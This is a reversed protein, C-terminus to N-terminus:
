QLQRRGATRVLKNGQWNTQQCNISHQSIKITGSDIHAMAFRCPYLFFYLFFQCCSCCTRVFCQLRKLICHASIWHMEPPKEFHLLLPINSAKKKKPVKNEKEQVKLIFGMREACSVTCIYKNVHDQRDTARQLQLTHTSHEIGDALSTGPPSPSWKV